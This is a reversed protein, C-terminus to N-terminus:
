QGSPKAPQANNAPQPGAQKAKAAKAKEEAAQRVQEAAREQEEAERRAKAMQYLQYESPHPDTLFMSGVEQGKALRDAMQAATLAAGILNIGATTCPQPGVNTCDPIVKGGPRIPRSSNRTERKAEMVDPNLRYGQSRETCIVITQSDAGQKPCEPVTASAAKASSTAPPPAAAPAAAPAPAGSAAGEPAQSFLLAAVPLILVM